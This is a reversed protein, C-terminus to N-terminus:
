AARRPRERVPHDVSHMERELETAFSNMDGDILDHLLKELVGMLRECRYPRWGAPEAWGDKDLKRVLDAAADRSAALIPLEPSIRGREFAILFPAEVESLDGLILPRMLGLQHGGVHLMLANGAESLRTLQSALSQGLSSASRREM